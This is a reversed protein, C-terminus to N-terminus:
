FAVCGTFMSDFVRSALGTGLGGFALFRCVPGLGIIAALIRVRKSSAATRRDLTINSTLTKRFDFSHRTGISRSIQIHMLAYTYRVYYTGQVHALSM